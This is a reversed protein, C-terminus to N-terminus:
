MSAMWVRRLFSGKMFTRSQGAKPIHFNSYKFMSSCCFITNSLYYVRVYINKQDMRKIWGKECGHPFSPFRWFESSYAHLIRCPRWQTFQASLVFCGLVTSKEGLRKVSTSYILEWLGQLKAGDFDNLDGVECLRGKSWLFAVFMDYADVLEEYNKCTCGSHDHMIWGHIPMSNYQIPLTDSVGFMLEWHDWFPPRTEGFIKWSEQLSSWRRLLDGWNSDFSM